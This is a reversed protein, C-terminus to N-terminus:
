WFFTIVCKGQQRGTLCVVNRHETFSTIMKKQYDYLKFKIRGKGPRQIMMYNEIFCIPDKSCKLLEAMQAKTYTEKIHPKKIIEIDSKAM